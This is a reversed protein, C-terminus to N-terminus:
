GGQPTDSRCFDTLSLRSLGRDLCICTGVSRRDKADKTYVESAEDVVVNMFEDFGQWYFVCDGTLIIWACFTPMGVIIYGEIRLEVNDYLWILVKAKKPVILGLSFHPAAISAGTAFKQLHCEVCHSGEILRTLV